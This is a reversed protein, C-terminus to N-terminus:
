WSFSRGLKPLKIRGEPDFSKALMHRVREQYLVPDPGAPRAFLPRPGFRTMAFRYDVFGPQGHLAVELVDDNRGHGRDSRVGVKRALEFRLAWSHGGIETIESWAIEAEPAVNSPLCGGLARWFDVQEHGPLEPVGFHTDLEGALQGLRFIRISKRDFAFVFLSRPDVDYLTAPWVVAGGSDLVRQWADDAKRADVAMVVYQRALQGHALLNTDDLEKAREALTTAGDNLDGIERPGKWIGYPEWWPERPRSANFAQAETTLRYSDPKILAPDCTAAGSAAPLQQIARLDLSFLAATAILAVALASIRRM